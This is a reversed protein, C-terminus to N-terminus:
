TREKERGFSLLKGSSFTDPVAHIEVVFSRGGKGGSIGDTLPVESVKFVSIDSNKVEEWLSDDKILHALLQLAANTVRQSM